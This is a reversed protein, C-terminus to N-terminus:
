QPRKNIGTRKGLSTRKASGKGDGSSDARSDKGKGKASDKDAPKPVRSPRKQNGRRASRARNKGAARPRSWRRPKRPPRRPGPKRSVSVRPKLEEQNGCRAARDIERDAEQDAGGEKTAAAPPSPGLKGTARPPSWRRRQRPPAATEPQRPRSWSRRQRLPSFPGSSERRGESESGAAQVQGRVASPEGRQGGRDQEHRGARRDQRGPQHPGGPHRQAQKQVESAKERKGGHIAKDNRDIRALVSAHPKENVAVNTYNYRNNNVTYNNIVTNNVVPAARYNNIITTRNINTERVRSYDRVDSFHNQGIVIAQGLFAFSGINM